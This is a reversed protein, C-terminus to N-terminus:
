EGLARSVPTSTIAHGVQVDLADLEVLEHKTLDPYQDVLTRRREVIRRLWPGFDLDTM